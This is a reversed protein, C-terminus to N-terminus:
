AETGPESGADAGAEGGAEGGFRVLTVTRTEGPAWRESSGAEIDLRFGAVAARDFILRRNVRDFPFHSSIRVARVSTNEVVVDRRERGDDSSRDGTAPLIAGPGDADTPAGRGLPDVLVILRVGDRLLVEIRVDEVLERVGPLVDTPAVAALGAAEVEPYSRDARAAELMADCMLAIAEPANLLLGATRHRRALEAASFILLREEEWATLRM